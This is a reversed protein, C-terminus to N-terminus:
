LVLLGDTKNKSDASEFVILCFKDIPSEAIKLRTRILSVVSSHCFVDEQSDVNNNKTKGTMKSLHVEALSRSFLRWDHFFSKLTLTLTAQKQFVSFCM